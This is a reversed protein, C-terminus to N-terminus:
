PLKVADGHIARLLETLGDGIRPGPRLVTSGLAPARGNALARLAKWGPADRKAVLPSPGGMGASAGDLLVEPDLAILRELGISPYAGGETILNQAHALRMLEDPFSGPGAVVIPAVDFVMVTRPAPLDKTARLVADRQGQIRLIVSKAESARQLRSGLGSLMQVIQDFSETEPFYTDIGRAGLKEALAPGAPGHAGVVLTPSLALVAEINPDAYGGAIPLSLAEKPYDCFRSRGVLLGGAGIAFVAETTSPSLSVVRPDGPDRAPKASCGGALIAAVAGLFTRRPTL